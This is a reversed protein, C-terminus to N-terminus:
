PSAGGASIAARAEQIRRKAAARWEPDARQREEEEQELRRRDMQARAAASDKLSQELAELQDWWHTTFVSGIFARPSSIPNCKALVGRCGDTLVSALFEAAKEHISRTGQIVNWIASRLIEKPPDVPSKRRWDPKIDRHVVSAIYDVRRNMEEDSILPKIDRHIVPPKTEEPTAMGDDASSPRPNTKIEQSSMQREDSGAAVPGDGPPNEVDEVGIERHDPDQIVQHDPDVIEQHGPDIPSGPRDTIQTEAWQFRGQEGDTKCQVELRIAQLRGKDLSPIAARNVRYRQGSPRSSGEDERELVGAKILVRVARRCTIVTMETADAWERISTPPTWERGWSWSEDCVAFLLASESPLLIVLKKKLERPSATFKTLMIPGTM